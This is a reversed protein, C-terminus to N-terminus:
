FRDIYELFSLFYHDVLFYTMLSVLVISFFSAYVFQGNQKTLHHTIILIPIVSIFLLIPATLMIIPFTEGGSLGALMSVIGVIVLPVALLGYQAMITVANVKKQTLALPIVTALLGAGLLLANGVFSRSTIEFFPLSDIHYGWSDLYEKYASNLWFYTGLAFLLAFLVLTTLGLLFQQDTRKMTVTPDKLITTFENIYRQAASDAKVQSQDTTTATAAIQERQKHIENVSQQESFPTGCNECFNGSTQEHQCAPCHQM